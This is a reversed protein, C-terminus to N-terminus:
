VFGFLVNANVTEEGFVVGLYVSRKEGFSAFTQNNVTAEWPFVDAARAMGAVFCPVYFPFSTEGVVEYVGDTM